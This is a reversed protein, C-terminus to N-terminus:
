KVKCDAPRQGVPLNCEAKAKAVQERTATVVIENPDNKGAPAATKGADAKPADAKPASGSKPADAKPADAKPADAKPADAKPADAKPADAKPDDAKPADAKPTDAKAPDLEPGVQSDPTKGELTDGSEDGSGEESPTKAAPEAPLKVGKRALQAKAVDLKSGSTGGAVTPSSWFLEFTSQRAAKENASEAKKKDAAVQPIKFWIYMKATVVAKAKVDAVATKAAEAAKAAEAEADAATAEATTGDAVPKDAVAGTVEATQESVPASAAPAVAVVAKEETESLEVVINACDKAVCQASIKYKSEPNKLALAQASEHGIVGSAEVAEEQDKMLVSVLGEVSRTNTAADRGVESILQFSAGEFKASLKMSEPSYIDQSGFTKQLATMAAKAVTQESMKNTEKGHRACAAVLAIASLSSVLPLLRTFKM